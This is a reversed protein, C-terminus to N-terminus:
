VTTGTVDSIMISSPSGTEGYPGMSFLYKSREEKEGSVYLVSNNLEDEFSYNCKLLSNAIKEFVTLNESIQYSCFNKPIKDLKCEELHPFKSILILCTQM